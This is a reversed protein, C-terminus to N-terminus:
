WGALMHMEGNEDFLRKLHNVGRLQIMRIASISIVLFRTAQCHSLNDRSLRDRKMRTIATIGSFFALAFRCATLAARYIASFTNGCVAVIQRM